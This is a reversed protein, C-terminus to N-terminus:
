ALVRGATLVRGNVIAARGSLMDIDGTFDGSAHVVVRHEKGGSRTFIEVEGSLIVFFCFDRDGESFLMVGKEVDREQGFRSLSRKDEETLKPFAIELDAAM